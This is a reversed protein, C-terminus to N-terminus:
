FVPATAKGKESVLAPRSFDVDFVIRADVPLFYIICVALRRQNRRRLAIAVTAAANAARSTAGACACCGIL